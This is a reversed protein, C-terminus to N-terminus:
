EESEKYFEELNLLKEKTHNHDENLDYVIKNLTKKKKYAMLADYNTNVLAGSKTERVVGTVDTQLFEM